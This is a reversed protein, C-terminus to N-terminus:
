TEICRCFANLALIRKLFLQRLDESCNGFAKAVDSAGSWREFCSRTCRLKQASQLKAIDKKHDEIMDGLLRVPDFGTGSLSKLHKMLDVIEDMVSRTKRIKFTIGDKPFWKWSKKIATRM